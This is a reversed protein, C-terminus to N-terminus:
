FPNFNLTEGNWKWNVGNRKTENWIWIFLFPHLLHYLFIFLMVFGLFTTFHVKTESTFSSLVKLDSFSKTQLNSYNWVEPFPRKIKNFKNYTTM